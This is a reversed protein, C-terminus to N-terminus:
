KKKAVVFAQGGVFKWFIPFMLYIRLMLISKPLSGKTTYPLFRPICKEIEFGNNELAECLSRDDLPTIHDFFMWYDKYVFRINPQLILFKGDKKLVRGIEKMTLVIDDKTLHEFFNSTFVVDISNSKISKMSTSKSIITKVDSNAHKKLDPNLDLAIKNKAKISNIFECYGAGVDLVTSDPEIYRSFFNKYLIDYMSKRFKEDKSFRKEYMKQLDAMFM